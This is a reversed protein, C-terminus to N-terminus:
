LGAVKVVPLDTHLHVVRHTPVFYEQYLGERPLFDILSDHLHYQSHRAHLLRACRVDHHDQGVEGVGFDLATRLM